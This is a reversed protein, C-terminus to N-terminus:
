TGIFSIISHAALSFSSYIKKRFSQRWMVCNMGAKQLRKGEGNKGKEPSPAAVRLSAGYWFFRFLLHFRALVVFISTAMSPGTYGCSLQQAFCEHYCTVWAHTDSTCSFKKREHCPAININQITNKLSIKNHPGWNTRNTPLIPNIWGTYVMGKKNCACMTLSVTQQEQWM